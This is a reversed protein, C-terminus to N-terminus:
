EDGEIEAVNVFKRWEAAVGLHEALRLQAAFMVVSGLASEIRDVRARHESPSLEELGLAKVM